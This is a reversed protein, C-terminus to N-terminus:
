SPAFPRFEERLKVRANLIDKAEPNCANGLISRHGLARPGFEMRGQFWAVVLNDDLLRAVKEEEAAAIVAGDRVLVAASDHSYCSIGLVNM